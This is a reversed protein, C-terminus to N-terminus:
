ANVSAKFSNIDNISKSEIQKAIRKNLGTLVKGPGCEIIQEIENNAFFEVTQTWKVPSYLQKVLADKISRSDKHESVDYNHIVPIEPTNFTINDLEQALKDAASQMLGCHSPVSVELVLFRRAGKEKALSEANLVAEKHGAIVVQGPSNFNAPTVVSNESSANKCVDFVDEDKLGIIAAMAGVGEPTALQMFKGRKSVLNVAEALSISSAAVLASYEGVSHGALYKPMLGTEQKYVNWLGVSCAVIAPQTFETKNLQSQDEATITEWLNFGLADSAETITDKFVTFGDYFDALMNKSQSGQGPFVIALNDKM